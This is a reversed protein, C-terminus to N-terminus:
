PKVISQITNELLVFDIPKALYADMIETVREQIDSLAHASLALIPINPNVEKLLHAAEEGGMIPMELDLIVLDFHEKRFKELAEQGNGTMTVKHGNRKLAISVVMQNVPNDEAILINFQRHKVPTTLVKPELPVTSISATLIFSFTSGSGKKSKISLRSNMLRLLENTISLGLGTGGYTKSTQASAQAFPILIREQEEESLGIGRDTVQFELSVCEASREVLIVKITIDAGQPSFKIANGTLNLLIQRMRDPDLSLYEPIQTDYDIILNLAKPQLLPSVITKVEQLLVSLNTPEFVLEVKGAEIKALDLVENILGLISKGCTQAVNFYELQMPGLSTGGLLYLSGLLGNLPTRIEHSLTAIFKTKSRNAEELSRAYEALEKKYLRSEMLNIVQKALIQLTHLQHEDLSRPIFDIVCLSGLRYGRPSILPVGVYFRICPPELVLINDNVRPDQLADKVIFPEDSLITYACFAQERPTQRIDTGFCSKFWQRDEDVLSVLAVPTRCIQQALHTLNDFSEEEPTDLVEYSRLEQLRNFENAPIPAPPM